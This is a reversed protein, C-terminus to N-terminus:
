HYTELVNRDQKRGFAFRALDPAGNMNAGSSALM